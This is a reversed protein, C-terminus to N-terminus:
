KNATPACRLKRGTAQEMYVLVAAPIIGRIGGGDIALIKGLKNPRRKQYIEGRPACM